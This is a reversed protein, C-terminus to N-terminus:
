PTEGGRKSIDGDKRRRRRGRRRSGGRSTAREGYGEPTGVEVAAATAVAAAAGRYDSGVVAPASTIEVFAGVSRRSASTAAFFASPPLLPSDVGGGEWPWAAGSECATPQVVGKEGSIGAEGGVEAEASGCDGSCGDCGGSDIGKPGPSSERQREQAPEADAACASVFPREPPAFDWGDMGLPARAFPSEADHKEGGVSQANDNDGAGRSSSSRSSGRAAAEEVRQEVAQM